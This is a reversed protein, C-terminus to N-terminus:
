AAERICLRAARNHHTEKLGDNSGEREIGVCLSQAIHKSRLEIGRQRLLRGCEGGLWVAHGCLAEEWCDLKRVACHAEGPWAAHGDQHHITAALQQRDVADAGMLIALEIAAEKRRGSNVPRGHGARQVERSEVELAPLREVRRCLNREPNVHHADVILPPHNKLGLGACRALIPAVRV